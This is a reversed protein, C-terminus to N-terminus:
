KCLLIYAGSGGVVTWGAPIGVTKDPGGSSNLSAGTMTYAKAGFCRKYRGSTAAQAPEVTFSFLVGLIFAISLSLGLVFSRM